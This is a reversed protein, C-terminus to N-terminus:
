QLTYLYAAIDRAQEKTVGLDPMATGATVEQPTTIWRVLNDPSNELVGAAYIRSAFGQLPPGATGNAGAIGPIVHCTGCGYTFILHGGNKPNGGSAQDVSVPESCGSMIAVMLVICVSTRVSKM